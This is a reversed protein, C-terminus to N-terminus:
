IGAGRPCQAQESSRTWAQPAWSPAIPIAVSWDDAPGAGSSRGAGTASNGIHKSDAQDAAVQLRVQGDSRTASCGGEWVGEDSGCPVLVM